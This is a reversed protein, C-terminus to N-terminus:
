KPITLKQGVHLNNPDPISNAKVLADVSIGHAKAISSLTDGAKVEHVASGAAAPTTSAPRGSAISALEKSLTDLIIQKDRERATDIAKLKTSLADLDAATVGGPQRRLEALQTHLNEVDEQLKQQRFQIAEVEAQLRDLKEDVLALKQDVQASVPLTTAGWVLVFFLWLSRKM